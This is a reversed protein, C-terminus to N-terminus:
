DARIVGAALGRKPDRLKLNEYLLWPTCPLEAAWCRGDPYPSVSQVYKFDNVQKEEWIELDTKEVAPPALWFLANKGNKLTNRAATSTLAALSMIVWLAFFGQPLYNVLVKPKFFLYCLCISISLIMMVFRGKRLAWDAELILPTIAILPYVIRRYYPAILAPALALYGLMFRRTPVSFLVFSVGLVAALLVWWRGNIEKIKKAGAVIFLSILLGVIFVTSDLNRKFWPIIWSWPEPSAYQMWREYNQNMINVKGALEAGASWPLDLCFFPSPFFACGSSILGSIVVPSIIILCLFSGIIIRRALREKCQLYFLFSVILLPLTTLKVAVAGASLILPILKDDLAPRSLINNKRNSVTLIAWAVILILYVVPLDPSSSVASSLGLIYPSCILYATAIFWDEYRAVSTVFRSLLIVGHILMWMLGVGAMIANARATFSGTHFPAALAFWSSTFGLRAHILAIGPAAGYQSLWKISQIHYLGADTCAVLQTMFGAVVIEITFLALLHRKSLQKLMSLLESRVRPLLLSVSVALCSISAAVFPTLPFFFSASLMLVGLISIGLWLSLILRDGVRDFSTAEILHLTLLGTPLCVILFLLWAIIFFLM